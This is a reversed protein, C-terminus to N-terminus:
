DPHFTICKRILVVSSCRQHRDNDKKPKRTRSAFAHVFVLGDDSGASRLIPLHESSGRDRDNKIHFCSVVGDITDNM